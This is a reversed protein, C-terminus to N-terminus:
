SQKDNDEVKMFPTLWLGIPNQWKRGEMGEVGFSINGFDKDTKATGFLRDWISLAIAFNKNGYEMNLSHHSLHHPQTVLLWAFIKNFWLPTKINSHYFPSQMLLVAQYGFVIKPDCGLLIGILLVGTIQFCLEFLHNRQSTFPEVEFDSHHTRHFKWLFFYKHALRHQFYYWLDVLVFATILQVWIPATVWHFLGFTEGTKEIVSMYFFNLGAFPFLVTLFYFFNDGLNRTVKNSKSLPFIIGVVVLVTAYISLFIVNQMM